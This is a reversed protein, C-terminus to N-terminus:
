KGSSNPQWSNGLWWTQVDARNESSLVVASSRILCLELECSLWGLHDLKEAKHCTDETGRPL